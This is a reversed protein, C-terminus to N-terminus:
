RSEAFDAVAYKSGAFARDCAERTLTMGPQMTVDASKNGFDVEVDAV